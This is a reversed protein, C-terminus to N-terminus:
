IGGGQKLPLKSVGDTMTGVWGNAAALRRAEPFNIATSKIPQSLKIGQKETVVIHIM